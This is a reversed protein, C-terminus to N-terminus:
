FFTESSILSKGLLGFGDEVHILGVGQGTAPVLATEVEKAIGTVPARVDKKVIVVTGSWLVTSTKRM